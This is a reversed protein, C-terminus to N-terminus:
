NHTILVFVLTNTYENTGGGCWRVGDYIWVADCLSTDCAAMSDCWMATITECFEEAILFQVSTPTKM